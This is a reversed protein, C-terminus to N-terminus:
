PVGGAGDGGDGDYDGPVPVDDAQGLFVTAQGDIFWAGDRFVARDTVGDGDYDAPVPADGPLGLFQTSQADVYWGGVEPRWVSRDASGDGDFDPWAVSVPTLSVALEYAGLSAYTTFGTSADLWGIPEVEVTYRGATVAITSDVTWSSPTSPTGSAVVVGGSDRVTYRALLDSWTATGAPPRLTVDLSGRVADVAFVDSDGTAGIVGATTSNSAVLTASAPVGTHDDPLLGTYGAIEVLDDEANNANAYEGRSWQTVLSTPSISRGMIPAWVGHGDYYEAGTTTGDHNLGLTHGAEHSVAEAITKANQGGSFVFATHDFSRDFVSLLAVGLVGAGVWNTPTVVVRQGYALDGSRPRACGM